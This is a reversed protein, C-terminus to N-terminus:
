AILQRVLERRIRRRGARAIDGQQLLRLEKTLRPVHQFLRDDAVRLVGREFGIQDAGVGFDVTHVCGDGLCPFGGCGIWAVADIVHNRRLQVLLSSAALLRNGQEFVRDSRPGGILIERRSKGPEINTHAHWGLRFGKQFVPQFGVWLIQRGARFQREIIGLM